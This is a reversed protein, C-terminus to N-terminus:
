LVDEVDLDFLIVIMMLVLGLTLAVDAINFVPFDIFTLRFMDIVYGYRVRDIFNGIAGGLILGYSLRTLWHHRSNKIILYILYISVIITVVIFLSINGSFLGWGAGDNRLYYFDFIGNIGSISQHLNLRSVTLYKVAQDLIVLLITTIIPLIM